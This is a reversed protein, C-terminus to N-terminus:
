ALRYFLLLAYSDHMRLILMSPMCYAPLDLLQTDHLEENAEGKAEMCM